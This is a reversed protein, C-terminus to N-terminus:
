NLGENISKLTSINSWRQGNHLGIGAKIRWQTMDHPCRLKKFCKEGVAVEAGLVRRGTLLRCTGIARSPETSLSGANAQWAAGEVMEDSKLLHEQCEAATAQLDSSSAVKRGVLLERFGGPTDPTNDFSPQGAICRGDARSQTVVTQVLSSHKDCQAAGMELLSQTVGKVKVECLMLFDEAELGIRVSNGVFPCGIERTQGHKFNVQPHCVTQDVYIDMPTCIDCQEGCCDGRNTVSVSSIHYANGLEVEWWPKFEYKTHTCSNGTWLNDANGDVARNATGIPPYTDSCEVDKGIEAQDKCQDTSQLASLGVMNIENGDYNSGLQAMSLWKGQLAFEFFEVAENEQAERRKQMMRLMEADTDEPGKKETRLLQRQQPAGAKRDEPTSRTGADVLQRSHDGRAVSAAANISFAESIDHGDTGTQAVIVAGAHFVFVFSLLSLLPVASRPLM